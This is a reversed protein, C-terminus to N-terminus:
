RTRTRGGRRRAQLGVGRLTVFSGGHTVTAGAHAILEPFLPAVEAALGTPLTGRRRALSLSADLELWRGLRADLRTEIGYRTSSPVEVAQAADPLWAVEDEQWSTFASVAARVREDPHFQIGADGAWM